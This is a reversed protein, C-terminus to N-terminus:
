LIRSRLKLNPVAKKKSPQMQTQSRGRNTQVNFKETMFGGHVRIQLTANRNIELLHVDPNSDKESPAGYFVQSIGSKIIATSCM